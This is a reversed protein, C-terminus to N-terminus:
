SDSHTQGAPIGSVGALYATLGITSLKLVGRYKWATQCDCCVLDNHSINPTVAIWTTTTPEESLSPFQCASQPSAICHFSPSSQVM